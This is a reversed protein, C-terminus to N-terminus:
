IKEEEFSSEREIMYQCANVQSQAWQRVDPNKHELLTSYINKRREYYPVVSGVSAFSDLNCGIENLVYQKDAYNDILAMAEPTFTNGNAVQIMSALRAPAIDPYENCWDLFAQFHDGVMLIPTSESVM